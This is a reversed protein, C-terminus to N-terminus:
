EEIKQAAQATELLRKFLVAEEASGAVSLPIKMLIDRVPKSEYLRAAGGVGAGTGVAGLFGELGGGFFSALGAAGVPIVTQIGTPPTVAAQGARKTADLVRVLGEVEKLDDAKFFVGTQSGLRKVANAFRDPSIAEGGAQEVAKAIIATRASSRGPESLQNYLKSVDSRNKSFLLSNVIEPTAEGRNLVRKLAPIDLDRMMESLHKNSIEWKNLDAQGGVERIYDSMDKKVAGYISSLAREGTSRVGALEPAKFSEGLQKRLLEVNKLDQDQIADKWDALRAIVPDMEATGLSELKVIQDDIASVTNNVPVIDDSLKTIVDDKATAWKSINASRTKLLDDVIDDSLNAVDDAGYQQILDRVAAVREAQQKSRLRGTGFVPIKETISQVWRKVFTQPPAVDSTLLRVGAEEAEQVPATAGIRARPQGVVSGLVSGGLGAAIQGVPGAGAEEALRQAGGAGIGGTIQQIPQSALTQGIAQTATPVLKAGATMATGLGVSGMAGAAGEAASEFIKEAATDPKPVGMQDFLATLATRADGYNTGFTKNIFNTIGPSIAKTVEVGAAGVGAGVPGALVGGIGAATATPGAGRVLGGLLGGVTTKPKVPPQEVQPAALRQKAAETTEFTYEGPGAIERISAVYERVEAGNPDVGEPINVIINDRTKIKPM